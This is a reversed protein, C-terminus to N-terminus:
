QPYLIEPKLSAIDGPWIHVGVKASNSWIPCRVGLILFFQFLEIYKLKVRVPSSPCIHGDRTLPSSPCIHGETTVDHHCWQSTMYLMMFKTSFFLINCQPWLSMDEQLITFLSSFQSGHCIFSQNLLYFFDGFLEWDRPSTVNWTGLGWLTLTGDNPQWSVRCEWSSILRLRKCSSYTM